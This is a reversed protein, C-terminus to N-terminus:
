FEDPTVMIVLADAITLQVLEPASPTDGMIRCADGLADRVVACWDADIDATYHLYPARVAQERFSIKILGDTVDVMPTGITSAEIIFFGCKQAWEAAASADDVPVVLADLYGLVHNDEGSREEMDSASASIIKLTLAGPGKVSLETMKTGEFVVGAAALRDGVSQLSPAYYTLSAPATGNGDISVLIQGDTCPTRGDHSSSSSFGVAELSGITSESAATHLTLRAVHGLLAM